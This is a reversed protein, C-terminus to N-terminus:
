PAPPAKRALLRAAVWHGVLTFAVLGAVLAIALLGAPPYHGMGEERSEAMSTLLFACALFAAAVSAAEGAAAWRQLVMGLVIFLAFLVVPQDTWEPGAGDDEAGWTVFVWLVGLGAGLLVWGLARAYPQWAM